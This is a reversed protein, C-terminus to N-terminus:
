KRIVFADITFDSPVPIYFLYMKLLLIEHIGMTVLFFQPLIKMGEYLISQETRVPFSM